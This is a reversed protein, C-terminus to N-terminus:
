TSSHTEGEDRAWRLDDVCWRGDLLVLTFEAIYEEDDDSSLYFDVVFRDDARSRTTVEQEETHFMDRHATILRRFTALPVRARYHPSFQSYAAAIDDSNLADLQSRAAAIAAAEASDNSPPDAKKANRDSRAAPAAVLRPAHSERQLLVWTTLTFAVTGTGLLAGLRRLLLRRRASEREFVPPWVPAMVAAPEFVADGPAAEAPVAHEATHEPEPAGADAPQPASSTDAQSSFAADRLPEKAAEPGRDGQPPVPGDKLPEEM